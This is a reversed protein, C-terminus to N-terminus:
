LGADGKIEEEQDVEVGEILAAIREALAPTLASIAEPRKQMDEALFSLFAGVVPDDGDDEARHISVRHQEDVRFTIMGGAGVGLADRVFKPVTTQGKGTIKSKRELVSVM